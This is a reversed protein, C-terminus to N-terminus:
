LRASRCPPMSRIRRPGKDAPANYWVEGGTPPDSATRAETVHLVARAELAQAFMRMVLSMVDTDDLGPHHFPAGMLGTIKKEKAMVFEAIQIADMLQGTTMDM